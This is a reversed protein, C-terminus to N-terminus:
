NSFAEDWKRESRGFIGFTPKETAFQAKKDDVKKFTNVLLFKKKISTVLLISKKEQQSM